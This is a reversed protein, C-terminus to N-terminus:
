DRVTANPQTALTEPCVKRHRWAVRLLPCPLSLLLLQLVLVVTSYLVICDSDHWAMRDGARACSSNVVAYMPKRMSMEVDNTSYRTSFFLTARADVCVRVREPTADYATSREACMCCSEKEKAEGGKGKGKSHM